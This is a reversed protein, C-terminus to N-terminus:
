RGAATDSWTFYFFQKDIRFSANPHDLNMLHKWQMSEDAGSLPHDGLYTQLIQDMPKLLFLTGAFRLRVDFVVFSHKQLTWYDFTNLWKMMFVM